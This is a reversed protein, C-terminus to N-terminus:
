YEGNIQMTVSKLGGEAELIDIIEVSFGKREAWRMYMRYLMSTWDCAETGGAGAHITLFADANDMEESLLQLTRLASYRNELNNISEAIEKELSNDKESIAIDFLEKTDRAENSLTEWPIFAEKLKKIKLLTDEAKKRDGWFNEAYTEKEM